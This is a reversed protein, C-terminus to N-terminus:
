FSLVTNRKLPATSLGSDHPLKSTILCRLNKGVRYVKKYGMQGEYGILQFSSLIFKGGGLKM